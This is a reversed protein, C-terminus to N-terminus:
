GVIKIPIYNTMIKWKEALEVLVDFYEWMGPKEKETLGHKSKWLEKFMMKYNEPAGPYLQDHELFFIEDRNDIEHKYPVVHNAYHKILETPTYIVVLFNKIIGAKTTDKIGDNVLKQGKSEIDSIIVYVEEAFETVTIGFADIIDKPTNLDDIDM